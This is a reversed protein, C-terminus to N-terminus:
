VTVPLVSHAEFRLAAVQFNPFGAARHRFFGAAAIMAANDTCLISPPVVFRVGEETALEALTTRLAGNAAVGGCLGLTRPRFERLARSVQHRLQSIAARQFAAAIDGVREPERLRAQSAATKLGSYSFDFSPELNSPTFRLGKVAGSRAMVELNPGGPQPLGLARAVKDYAEGVADDRTRGLRTYVGFDEMMVLDTHGGSVVLSLMPFELEPVALFASCIHGEVHNVPRCPIRHAYALAKGGSLGVLLAGVLGPGYTVAVLDLQGWEVGTDAQLAALLPNLAELHQRSAIEPVVGGFLAHAQTQSAILNARISFQNGAEHELLAVSTEDCSTEIGLILM